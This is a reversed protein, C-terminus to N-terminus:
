WIINTKIYNISSLYLWKNKSPSQVIVLYVFSSVNAVIGWLLNLDLDKSSINSLVCKSKSRFYCGYICIEQQQSVLNMNTLFWMKLGFLYGSSHRFLLSLLTNFIIMILFDYEFDLTPCCLGRVFPVVFSYADQSSRSAQQYSITSVLYM